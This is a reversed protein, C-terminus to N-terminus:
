DNMRWDVAGPFVARNKGYMGVFIGSVVVTTFRLPNIVTSYKAVARIPLNSGLPSGSFFGSLWGAEAKATSNPFKLGVVGTKGWWYAASPSGTTVGNAPVAYVVPTIM